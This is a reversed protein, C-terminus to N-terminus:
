NPQKQSLAKQSNSHTGTFIYFSILHRHLSSNKYPSQSFTWNLESCLSKLTLDGECLCSQWRILSRSCIEDTPGQEHHFPECWHSSRLLLTSSTKLCVESVCSTQIWNCWFNGFYVGELIKFFCGRCYCFKCKIQSIKCSNKGHLYQRHHIGHSPRHPPPAPPSRRSLDLSSPINPLSRSNLM